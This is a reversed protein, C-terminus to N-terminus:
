PQRSFTGTAAKLDTESLSALTATLIDIGTGLVRWGLGFPSVKFGRRELTALTNMEVRSITAGRNM